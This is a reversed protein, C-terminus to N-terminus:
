SKPSPQAQKELNRSISLLRFTWISIGSYHMRCRHNYGIANTTNRNVPAPSHACVCSSGVVHASQSATCLQVPVIVYLPEPLPELGFPSTESDFDSLAVMSNVVAFPLWGHSMLPSKLVKPM